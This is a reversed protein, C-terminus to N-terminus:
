GLKFRALDQRLQAAIASLREGEQLTRNAAEETQRSGAQIEAVSRNIEDSVQSQEQAAGAIMQIRSNVGAVATMIADLAHGAEESEKVSVETLQRGQEMAAVGATTKTQLRQILARIEETSEQTRMALQRVEDAVVAFGRGQEGARAAEIAANLALLNTQEAIGRIVALVKDISKSEEHAEHIVRTSRDISVELESISHLADSMERHGRAVEEDATRTALLTGEAQEAVHQATASMENMATAVLETQRHQLNVTDLTQQNVERLNRSAKILEEGSRELNEVLGRLGDAMQVAHQTLRTIENHTDPPDRRAFARVSEPIRLQGEAMAQLAPGLTRLPNLEARLLIITIGALLAAVIVSLLIMLNRLSHSEAQTDAEYSIAVIKNLRGPVTMWEIHMQGLEPHSPDMTDLRGDDSAFIPAFVSDEGIKQGQLSPHLTALGKQPGSGEFAAVYGHQGFHISKLSEHTRQTDASIDVGVFLIGTVNKGADLIPSYRTMYERGFLTARGIYPKGQTIQAYGPHQTGLLTGVAREGNEKKLSTTIRLFDDGMRVFVTAVGGTMKEFLDVQNYNLNLIEGDSTMIPADHAGVKITGQKELRPRVPFLNSFVEGMQKVSEEQSQVRTELFRTILYLNNQFGEEAKSEFAASTRDNLILTIGLFALIIATVVIISIQSILSRRRYTALM